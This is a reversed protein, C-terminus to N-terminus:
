KNLNRFEQNLKQQAFPIFSNQYASTRSFNVKYKEYSRMGHIQKTYTDSLPFMRRHYPHKIAKHCFNLVRQEGRYRLTSFSCASLANLYSIYESSLIVQLSVKQCREIMDSQEKTLSSHFLVSCYELTSRICLKYIDLLDERKTGVYKLKTLLSLRSYAKKCLQECNLQWSLDNSIWVGLLRVASLQEINKNNIMLRTTFDTHSRTFIM